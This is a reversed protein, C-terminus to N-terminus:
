HSSLMAIFVIWFNLVSFFSVSFSCLMVSSHSFKLHGLMGNPLQLWWLYPASFNGLSILGVFKEFEIFVTVWLDLFSLLGWIYSIDLFSCQAVHYDTQKCFTILLFHYFHGSMSSVNLVFDWLCSYCCSRLLFSVVLFYTLCRWLILLFFVFEVYLEIDLLFIKKFSPSIFFGLFNM